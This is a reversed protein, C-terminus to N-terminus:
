RAPAETSVRGEFDLKELGLLIGITPLAGVKNVHGAKEGRRIGAGSMALVPYQGAGSTEVLSLQLVHPAQADQALDRPAL